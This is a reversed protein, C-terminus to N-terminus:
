RSELVTVINWVLCHFCLCMNILNCCLWHIYKIRIRIKTTPKIKLLSPSRTYIKKNISAYKNYLHYIPVLIINSQQKNIESQNPHQRSSLYHIEVHVSAINVINIPVPYTYHLATIFQLHTNFLILCIDNSKQATKM